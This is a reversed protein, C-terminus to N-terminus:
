YVCVGSYTSREITVNNTYSRVREGGLFALGKIDDNNPNPQPLKKNVSLLLM